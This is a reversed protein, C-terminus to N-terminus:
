VRERCSARGIKVKRRIREVRGRHILEYISTGPLKEMPVGYLHAANKNATLIIGERDMLLVVEETANFLDLFVEEMQRRGKECNELEMVRQRLSEIEKILGKEKEIKHAM